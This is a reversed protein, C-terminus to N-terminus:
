ISLWLLCFLSTTLLMSESTKIAQTQIERHRLPTTQLIPIFFIITDTGPLRSLFSSWYSFGLTNLKLLRLLLCKSLSHNTLYSSFGRAHIPRSHFPLLKLFSPTLLQLLDQQYSSSRVPIKHPHFIFHKNLVTAPM